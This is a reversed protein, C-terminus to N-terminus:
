FKERSAKWADHWWWRVWSRSVAAARAPFLFASNEQESPRVVGAALRGAGSACPVETAVVDDVLRCSSTAAPLGAYAATTAPSDLGMAV